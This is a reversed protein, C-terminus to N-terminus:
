DGKLYQKISRLIGLDEKILGLVVNCSHCLLGRVKNTKHCHDVSLNKKYKHNEPKKCIACTNNQDSKMQQFQEFTIGYNRKLAAASSQAKYEPTNEKQFFLEPNAKRFNRRYQNRCSRCDARYGDGTGNKKTMKHFSSLPLINSCRSCTKM